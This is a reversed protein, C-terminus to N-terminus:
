ETMGMQRAIQQAEQMLQQMQADGIGRQKALNMAMQQPNRNGILGAFQRIQAFLPNGGGQAAQQPMMNKLPNSM